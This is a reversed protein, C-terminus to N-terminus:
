NQIRFESNGAERPSKGQSKTRRKTTLIISKIISTLEETEKVLPALLRKEVIGSEALLTLWYATERAEKEAIGLKHVFDMRSEAAQAEELNAGISTAARLYQKGLIWGAGDKQKQLHQYLKIARLSYSFSRTRIDPPKTDVQNHRKSDV